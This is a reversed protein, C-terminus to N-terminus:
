LTYTRKINEKEYDSLSVPLIVKQILQPSQVFQALPSSPSVTSNIDLGRLPSTLNHLSCNLASNNKPLPSERQCLSSTAPTKRGCHTDKPTSSQSPEMFSPKQLSGVPPSEMCDSFCM